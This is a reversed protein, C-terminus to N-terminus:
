SAVKCHQANIQKHNLQSKSEASLQTKKEREYQSTFRM